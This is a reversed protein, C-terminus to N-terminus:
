NARRRSLVAMGGIALLIVLVVLGTRSVAPAGASSPCGIFRLFVEGNGINGGTTLGLGDPTFGSGGGGGGGASGNAVGGGGGGFLGGGGGGGAGGNQLNNTSGTGGLGL